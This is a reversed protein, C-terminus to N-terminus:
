NKHELQNNIVNAVNETNTIIVNSNKASNNEANNILPKQKLIDCNLLLDALYLGFVAVFSIMGFLKQPMSETSFYMVIISTLLVIKGRDNIIIGLRNTILTCVLKPYIAHCFCILLLIFIYFNLFFKSLDTYEIYNPSKTNTCLTIVIFTVLCTGTSLITIIQKILEFNMKM